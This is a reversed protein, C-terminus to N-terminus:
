VAKEQRAVPSIKSLLLRWTYGLIGRVRQWFGMNHLMENEASVKKLLALCDRHGNYIDLWDVGYQASFQKIPEELAKPSFLICDNLVCLHHRDSLRLLAQTIAHFSPWASIEHPAQPATLFLRADDIIIMSDDNLHGIAQLEELLPCQSIEGATANAVCWHADLWFVTPRGDIKSMIQKLATGSDANMLTINPENAFQQQAEQYYHSSLEVSYIHNFDHKISHITEGRFTGTEVFVDFQLHPRIADVLRRDISFTVAGM